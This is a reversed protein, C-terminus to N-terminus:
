LRLFGKGIAGSYIDIIIVINTLIRSNTRLLPIPQHFILHFRLNHEIGTFDILIYIVLIDHTNELAYKAMTNRDIRIFARLTFNDEAELALLCVISNAIIMLASSTRLTTLGKLGLTHVFIEVSECDLLKFELM